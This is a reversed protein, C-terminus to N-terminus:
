APVASQQDTVPSVDLLPPSGVQLLSCPDGTSHVPLTPGLKALALVGGNGARPQSLKQSLRWPIDAGVLM